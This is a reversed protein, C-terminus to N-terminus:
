APRVEAGHRHLRYPVDRTRRGRYLAKDGADTRHDDAGDDPLGIVSCGIRQGEAVQRDANCNQADHVERFSSPQELSSM